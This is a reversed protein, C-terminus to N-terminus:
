CLFFPTHIPAASLCNDPKLQMSGAELAVTSASLMPQTIHFSAYFSDLVSLKTIAGSSLAQYFSNLTSPLPCWPQLALGVNYSQYHALFSLFSKQEM